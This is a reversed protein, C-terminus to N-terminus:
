RESILANGRRIGLWQREIIDPETRSTHIFYFERLPYQRHLSRYLRMAATGDPCRDIVALQDLQRRSDPTTHAELAEVVIWQDPYTKRVESWRM